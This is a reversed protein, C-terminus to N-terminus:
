SAEVAPPQRLADYIYDVADGVTKLTEAAEDTIDADFAEELESIVSILDLSEAGLDAMFAADRTIQDPEVNLVECLVEKIREFVETKTM